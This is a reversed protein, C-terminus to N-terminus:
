QPISQYDSSTIRKPNGFRLLVMIPANVMLLIGSWFFLRVAWVTIVRMTNRTFIVMRRCLQWVRKAGQHHDPDSTRYFYDNSIRFKECFEKWKPVLEDLYQKVDKRHDRATTFVKLGHEDVGVNFFVNNKGLKKRFYRAYADAQFFEIAHGVHPVSNAYPLTTTIYFMEIQNESIKILETEWLYGTFICKFVLDFIM